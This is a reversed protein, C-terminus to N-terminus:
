EGLTGAGGGAHREPVHLTESTYAPNWNGIAIVEFVKTLYLRGQHLRGKQLKRYTDDTPLVAPPKDGLLLPCMENAGENSRCAAEGM